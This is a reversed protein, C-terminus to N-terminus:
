PLKGEPTKAAVLELSKLSKRWAGDSGSSRALFRIVTNTGETVQTEASVELRRTLRDIATAVPTRMLLRSLHECRLAYSEKLM